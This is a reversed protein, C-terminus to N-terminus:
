PASLSTHCLAHVLLSETACARKIWIRQKPAQFILQATEKYRGIRFIHVTCKSVTLQGINLSRNADFPQWESAFGRMATNASANTGRGCRFTAFIPMQRDTQRDTQRNICLEVVALCVDCQSSGSSSTLLLLLTRKV